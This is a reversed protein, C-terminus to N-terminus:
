HEHDSADEQENNEDDVEEEEEDEQGNNNRNRGQQEMFEQIRVPVADEPIEESGSRVTNYSNCDTCKLGIIHYVTETEKNCDRCKVQSVVYM